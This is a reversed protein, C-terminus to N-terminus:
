KTEQLKTRLQALGRSVRKRVVSQSCNLETAIEEYEREEVIRRKVAERQDAPLLAFEELLRETSAVLGETHDLDQTSLDLVPMRLHRRAKDEVAQRRRAYSLNNRAIGFLWASVPGRKARYRKRHALAAAFTEATLDAALEPNGTRAMFYAVVTAKHRDYLVGFAQPQKGTAKLLQQDTLQHLQQM